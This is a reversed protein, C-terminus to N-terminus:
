KLPVYIDLECDESDPIFRESYFEFDPQFAVEQGSKPLWSGYIYEYTSRLNDLSGKHIFVAYKGAPVTRAVMGEPIQDFNDVELGAVYSFESDEKMNEVPFCVGYSVDSNTRNTIEGMRPIFRHWMQGIEGNKNNGVYEMGIIKFEGKTLFKPEMTIGRQLHLLAEETLKKRYLFGTPMVKDKRYKGPTLGYLRTFARTFAEQSQYQYDFAIDIIRKDTEKLALCAETLRRKRIYETISEGVMALFIRHFHFLSFSAAEAVQGITIDDTLHAEIYDIANQVKALYEM